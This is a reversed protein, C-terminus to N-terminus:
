LTYEIDVGIREILGQGNNPDAFWQLDVLSNAPIIVSLDGSDSLTTNGAPITVRAGTDAGNARFTIVLDVNSENRQARASMRTITISSSLPVQEEAESTRTGSLEGSISSFTTGFGPFQTMLSSIIQSNQPIQQNQPRLMWAIIAVVSGAILVDAFVDKKNPM